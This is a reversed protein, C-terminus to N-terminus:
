LGDDDEGIWQYHAANRKGLRVTKVDGSDQLSQIVMDIEDKRMKYGLKRLLDSHSIGAVTVKPYDDSRLQLQTIVAGPPPVNIINRRIHNVVLAYKAGQETTGMYRVLQKSYKENENLLSLALSIDEYSIRMEDNRSASLCMAVKLLFDGKRGYYGRMFSEAKEPHNHEHYWQDFFQDAAPDLAFEGRMGRHIAALDHKVFEIAERQTASMRLRSNKEGKPPRHVLILRSFFGGELSEEPISSRLWKPTSGGLLNICVNTIKEEGRGITTFKRHDPSDWFDTLRKIFVDDKKSNDLLVSLESGEIIGVADGGNENMQALASTFAAATMYDGLMNIDPIADRLPKMGMKIATSKHTIASEGVLVIYMNPYIPWMGMDVYVNRGLACAITSILTWLHFDNPSEQKIAYTMYSEIMGQPCKRKSFQSVNKVSM